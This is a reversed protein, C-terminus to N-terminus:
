AWMAKLSKRAMMKSLTYALGGLGLLSAVLGAFNFDDSLMDFQKSPAVPTFFVDVGAVFVLSTSELGSPFAHVTRARSVTQNYNLNMQQPVPVLPRYPPLMGETQPKNDTPRRADVIRKPLSAVAGSPLALILNRFTVGRLTSTVGVATVASPIIYSQRLVIPSSQSLSSQVDKPKESAYLEIVSLEYRKDEKNFYHYVVWNETHVLHIPGQVSAHSSQDIISGRVSDIVYVNLTAANRTYNTLTAVAILHPNIYKYIVSRDALPEGLSAVPEIGKYAVSVIAETTPDFAVRTHAVATVDNNAAVLRYSRVSNDAVDVVTVFIPKTYQSLAHLASPTNPVLKVRLDATVVALPVNHSADHLPLALLAISKFSQLVSDYGDLTVAKGTLPDFGHIFTQSSALVAYVM